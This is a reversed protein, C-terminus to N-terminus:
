LKPIKPMSGMNPIKVGSQSQKIMKNPNSLDGYKKEYDSNYKEQEKNEEEKLDSFIEFIYEFEYFPMSMVDSWSIHLKDM